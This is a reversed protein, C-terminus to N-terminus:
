PHQQVGRLRPFLDLANYRWMDHRIPGTLLDTQMLMQSLRLCAPRPTFPFDSGYHLRKPDAIALLERLLAPVPAGALDFHLQKMAQAISPLASTGPLLAALGLEVRNWFFSLAAGAHPVIFRIRPYRTMVGSLILDTVSRTTEFMFELLPAPIKAAIRASCMCSPSTPHILIVAARKDLEVYLPEM